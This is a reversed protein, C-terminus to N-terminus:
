VCERESADNAQHDSNKYLPWWAKGAICRLSKKEDIKKHEEDLLKRLAKFSKLPMKLNVREAFSNKMEMDTGGILRENLFSSANWAIGFIHASNLTTM